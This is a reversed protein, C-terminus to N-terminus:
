QRDATRIGSILSSELDSQIMLYTRHTRDGSDQWTLTVRTWCHGMGSDNYVVEWAVPVGKARLMGDKHHGAEWRTLAARFEATLYHERLAQALPTRGSDYLVDIYAGYFDAVRDVTSRPSGQRAPATVTTVTTVPADEQVGTATAAPAAAAGLPLMVVGLGVRRLARPSRM